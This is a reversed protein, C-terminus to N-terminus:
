NLRRLEVRRNKARGDETNNDAVPDSEGYGKATVNNANVGHDVLYQRVSAARQESLHKNYSDRGRSDTHAAVEVRLNPNEKLTTVADNLKTQSNATLVASATEFYVGKLEIVKAMILKPKMKYKPAVITPRIKPAVVRPKAVPKACNVKAAAEAAKANKIAYAILEEIETQHYGEVLEHGAHYLNAQAAALEKPACKEAGAARASAIAARANSLESQDTTIPAHACASLGMAALAAIIIRTNTKRM